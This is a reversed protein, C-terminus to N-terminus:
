LTYGKQFNIEDKIAEDFNVVKDDFDQMRGELKKDHNEIECDKYHFYLERLFPCNKPISVAAINNRVDLM